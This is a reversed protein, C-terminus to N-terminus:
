AHRVFLAVGMFAALTWFWVVTSPCMQAASAPGGSLTTLVNGSAVQSVPTMDQSGPSWCADLPQLCLKDWSYCTM